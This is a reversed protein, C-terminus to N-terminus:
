AVGVMCRLVGAFKGCDDNFALLNAVTMTLKLAWDCRLSKIPETQCAQHLAVPKCTFCFEHGHRLNLAQGFRPSSGLTASM